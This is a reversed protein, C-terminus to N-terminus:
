DNKVGSFYLMFLSVTAIIAVLGTLSMTAINNHQQVLSVNEQMLIQTYLMFVPIWIGFIILILLPQYLKKM